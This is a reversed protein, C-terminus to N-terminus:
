KIHWGDAQIVMQIVGQWSDGVQAQHEFTIADPALGDGEKWFYLSM